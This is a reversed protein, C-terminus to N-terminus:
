RVPPSHAKDNTMVSPRATQEGAQKDTHPAQRPYHRETDPDPQGGSGEQRQRRTKSATDGQRAEHRRQTGRTAKSNTQRTTAQRSTQNDAPLPASIKPRGGQSRYRQQRNEGGWITMAVIPPPMPSQEGKTPDNDTNGAPISISKNHAGRRADHGQWM